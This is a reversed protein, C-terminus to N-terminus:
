PHAMRTVLLVTRVPEGESALNLYGRIRYEEGGYWRREGIPPILTRRPLQVTLFGALQAFELPKVEPEQLSSM